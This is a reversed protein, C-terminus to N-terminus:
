DDYDPSDLYIADIIIELVSGDQLHLILIDEGYVVDVATIEKGILEESIKQIDNMIRVKHQYSLKIKEARKRSQRKSVMLPM